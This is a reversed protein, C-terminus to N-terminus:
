MFMTLFFTTVNAHRNLCSSFFKMRFYGVESLLILFFQLLCLLLLKKRRENWVHVHVSLNYLNLVSKTKAVECLLRKVNNCQINFAPQIIMYCYSIVIEKSKLNEKSVFNWFQVFIEKVIKSENIIMIRNFKILANQNKSLFM